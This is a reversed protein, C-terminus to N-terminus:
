IKEFEGVVLSLGYNYFWNNYQETMTKTLSQHPIQSYKDPAVLNQAPFMMETYLTEIFDYKVAYEILLHHLIENKFSKISKNVLKKEYQTFRNLYQNDEITLILRDVVKNVDNKEFYLTGNLKKM